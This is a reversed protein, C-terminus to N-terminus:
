FFVENEQCFIKQNNTQFHKNVCLFEINTFIPIKLLLRVIWNEVFLL